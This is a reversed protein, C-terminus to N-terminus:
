VKSFHFVVVKVRFARSTFCYITEATTTGLSRSMNYDTSCVANRIYVRAKRGLEDLVCTACCFCFRQTVIDFNPVPTNLHSKSPGTRRQRLLIHVEPPRDLPHPLLGSSARGRSLNSVAHPVSRAGNQTRAQVADGRSGDASCQRSARKVVRPWLNNM